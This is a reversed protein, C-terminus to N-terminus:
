ALSPLFIYTQSFFFLYLVFQLWMECAVKIYIDLFAHARQYIHRVNAQTIIIIIIIIIIIFTIRVIM